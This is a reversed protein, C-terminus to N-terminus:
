GVPRTWYLLRGCLGEGFGRRAGVSGLDDGGDVETGVAKM